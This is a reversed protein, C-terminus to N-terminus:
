SAAEPNHKTAVGISTWMEESSRQSCAYVYEVTGWAADKFRPQRDIITKNLVHCNSVRLKQFTKQAM